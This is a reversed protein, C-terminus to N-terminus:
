SSLYTVLIGVASAEKGLSSLYGSCRRCGRDPNEMGHSSKDMKPVVLSQNLDTITRGISVAVSVNGFWHPCVALGAESLV